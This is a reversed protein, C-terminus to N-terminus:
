SPVGGVWPRDGEGPSFRGADSIVSESGSPPTLVTQLLARVYMMGRVHSLVFSSGVSGVVEFLSLVPDADEELSSDLGADGLNSSM